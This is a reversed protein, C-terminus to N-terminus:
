SLEEIAWDIMVALLCATAGFLLGVRAERGM